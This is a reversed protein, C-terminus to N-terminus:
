AAIERMDAPASRRNENPLGRSHTADIKFLASCRHDGSRRQEIIATVTRVLATRRTGANTSSSNNIVDSNAAGGDIVAPASSAVSQTASLTLFSAAESSASTSGSAHGTTSVRNAATTGSVVRITM